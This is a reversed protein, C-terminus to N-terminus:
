KNLLMRAINAAILYATAMPSGDMDQPVVSDDAVILNQVGYVHGTSDVVGGQDLPAMRCHSQFHEDTNISEKIFTTLAPIDTLIAPNPFILEYEPDIANLATNINKVYVQFAQLFLDLDSPNSLVGLNIVPPALPDTSNITITGRSLPQVIDVIMATLGPIANVTALRIQRITPDGTPDPLNAMQTFLGTQLNNPPTDDPNSTFVALVRNQDALGQGVNPNDFIVPINLPNLVASPGVGSLMLFQSSRLGGCVVVGKKAYVRKTQGDQTYEVGVAKNGQWIVKSAFANFLVRLKRGNVGFGEPTMVKENLFATASSVRLLGDPSQTYQFQSSVGIPTNPDNYDLVFPFGTATIEAQTFKQSVTTPNPNQRISLPGHFGRASPDTTDGHYNELKKYTDIIRNVSWEPGAIAEWQSYVQNTGRVWAGANISSAGGEPQALVWLLERNDAFIQPITNGRIYLPNDGLAALVTFISNATLAILPDDTLNEGSHIAVVSNTKDDSLRKAMLGGATGVGVVVYDVRPSRRKCKAHLTSTTFSSLLIAFFIFHFVSM